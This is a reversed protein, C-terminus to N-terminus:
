IIVIYVRNFFFKFFFEFIKRGMIIYYGIIFQKFRKFDDLLYWVLDNDKGFENYEGVVVIIIIM